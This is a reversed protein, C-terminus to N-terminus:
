RLWIATLVSAVFVKDCIPDLWAGTGSPTAGARAGSPGLARAFARRACWGDLVDSLGAAFLIAWPLWWRGHGRSPGALAWAFAGGLPIRSLSLVNATSFFGRLRARVVM